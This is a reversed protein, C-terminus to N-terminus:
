IGIANLADIVKGLALTLALHSEEFHRGSEGLRELFQAHRHAPIRGDGDISSEIEDLMGQIHERLRADVSEANALESRLERITAHLREKKM